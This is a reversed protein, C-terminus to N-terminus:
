PSQSQACLLPPIVPKRGKKLDERIAEALMMSRNWDMKTENEDHVTEFSLLTPEPMLRRSSHAGVVSSSRPTQPSVEDIGEDLGGADVSGISGDGFGSRMVKKRELQKVQRERKKWFSPKVMHPLAAAVKESMALRKIHWHERETSVWSVSLPSSSPETSMRSGPIIVPDINSPTTSRNILPELMPVPTTASTSDNLRRKKYDHDYDTQETTRQRRLPTSTISPYKEKPRSDTKSWFPPLDAPKSILRRTTNTTSPGALPSSMVLSFPSALFLVDDPKPHGKKVPTRVPPTSRSSQADKSRMSESISTNHAGGKSPGLPSSIPTLRNLRWMGDKVPEGGRGRGKSGGSSGSFMPHGKDPDSPPSTLWWANEKDAPDIGALGAFLFHATRGREDDDGDSEDESDRALDIRKSVNRSSTPLSKATPGTRAVEISRSSHLTQEVPRSLSSKGLLNDILGSEEAGLHSQIFALKQLLKGGDAWREAADTAGRGVLNKLAVDGDDLTEQNLVDLDASTILYSSRDGSSLRSSPHIFPAFMREIYAWDLGLLRPDLTNPVVRKPQFLKVFEQLEPLTSHRSLPVLQFPSDAIQEIYM